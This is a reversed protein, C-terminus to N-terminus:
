RSQRSAVVIISINRVCRMNEAACGSDAAQGQRKELPLRNQAAKIKGIVRWPMM